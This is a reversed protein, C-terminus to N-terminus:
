RSDGSTCLKQSERRVGHIDISCNAPSTWCSSTEEIVVNEDNPKDYEVLFKIFSSGFVNCLFPLSYLFCIGMISWLYAVVCIIWLEKLKADAIRFSHQGFGGIKKKTKLESLLLRLFWVRGYFLLAPFNIVIQNTKRFLFISSYCNPFFCLCISFFHFIFYVSARSYEVLEPCSIVDYTLVKVGKDLLLAIKAIFFYHVRSFSSIYFSRWWNPVLSFSFSASANTNINVNLRIM